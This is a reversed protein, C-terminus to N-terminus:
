PPSLFVAGGLGVAVWRTGTWAVGSAVVFNSPRTWSTGDPSVAVAYGGVAAFRRGSWAVAELDDTGSGVSSWSLGDDPSVLITGNPGVAVTASPSSAIGPLRQITGSTAPSWTTGDDSTIITGNWGGAVFRKGTWAVSWLDNLTGSTRPTWAVADASSLVVGSGGVAVCATGSCAVDGVQQGAPLSQSTWTVGDPSTLIASGGTAVLQAGSWAIGGVIPTTPVTCDLRPTWNLGDPSTVIFGCQPQQAPGAMVSGAAVLQSGTWTVRRLDTMGGTPIGTTTALAWARGSDDMVHVPAFGFGAVILGSGAFAGPIAVQRTLGAVILRDGVGLADSPITYSTTGAPVVQAGEPLPWVLDGSLADLVLLIYAADSTPAGPSWTVVHASDAAWADRTTAPDVEPYASFEAVSAGYSRGGVAVSLTVMDGPAVAVAGVYQGTTADFGLAVGNVTVSATAVPQATKPDLVQVSAGANSGAAPPAAGPPFSGVVAGIFPGPGSQNSCSAVLLVTLVLALRPSGNWLVDGVLCERHDKM